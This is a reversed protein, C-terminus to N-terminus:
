RRSIMRARYIISYGRGDGIGEDGPMAQLIKRPSDGYLDRHQREWEPFIANDWYVSMYLKQDDRNGASSKLLYAHAMRQERAWSVPSNRKLEDLRNGLRGIMSTDDKTLPRERHQSQKLYSPTLSSTELWPAPLDELPDLFIGAMITNFSHNRNVEIVIRLPGSVAFRKYVGPRFDHIREAALLSQKRYALPDDGRDDGAVGQYVNLMYDRLRNKGDHGDKNFDYFSLVFSGPPIELRYLIHPGDQAM